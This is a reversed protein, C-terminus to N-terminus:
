KIETTNLAEHLNKIKEKLPLLDETITQWLVEEDVGFYEHLVKNRMSIMDRWPIDHYKEKIEQPIYNAAEGIIELSRTVAQVTKKDDEFTEFTMGQTFNAIDNIATLIDESYLKPARKSM